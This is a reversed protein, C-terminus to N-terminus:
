AVSSTSLSVLTKSSCLTRRCADCSCVAWFSMTICFRLCFTFSKDYGQYVFLGDFLSPCHLRLSERDCTCCCCSATSFVILFPLKLGKASNVAVGLDRGRTLILLENQPGTFRSANYYRKLYQRAAVCAGRKIEELINVNRHKWVGHVGPLKLLSRDWTSSLWSLSSSFRRVEIIVISIRRLSSFPSLAAFFSSICLSFTHRKTMTFHYLYIDFVGSDGPTWQKVHSKLM